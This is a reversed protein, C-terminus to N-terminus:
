LGNVYLVKKIFTTELTGVESIGIIQVKSNDGFIFSGGDTKILIKFTLYDDSM